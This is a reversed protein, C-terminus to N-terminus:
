GDALDPGIDIVLGPDDPGGYYAYLGRDEDAYSLLASETAEAKLRAAELDEPAIQGTSKLWAIYEGTLNGRRPPRQRELRELRNKLNM